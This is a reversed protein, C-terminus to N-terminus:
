EFSFPRNQVWETAGRKQHFSLALCSARMQIFFELKCLVSCYRSNDEAVIKQVLKRTFHSVSDSLIFNIEGTSTENSIVVAEEDIKDSSFNEISSQRPEETGVSSEENANRNLLYPISM